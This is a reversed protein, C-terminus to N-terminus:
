EPAGVQELVVEYLFVEEYLRHRRVVDIDYDPIFKRANVDRLKYRQKIGGLEFEIYPRAAGLDGGAYEQLWRFWPHADSIEITMKPRYTAM